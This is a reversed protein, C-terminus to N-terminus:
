EGCSPGLTELSTINLRTEDPRRILFGRAEVKHRTLRQPNYAASVLLRYTGSGLPSGEAAEREGAVPQPNGTRVPDSASTLMWAGDSANPTLCAVVRVLSFDPVQQPGDKGVIQVRRLEDVALERTGAPFENVKLVHAIIDLYASDSLSGPAGRPMTTKTKDFLLDLTTERNKEMFRSGKLIDNYGSLDERHCNACHTTYQSQGRAAQADTYVGQWVTIASPNTSQAAAPSGFALVVLALAKRM